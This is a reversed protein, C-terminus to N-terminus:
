TIRIDGDSIEPIDLFNHRIECVGHAIGQHQDLCFLPLGIEVINGILDDEAGAIDGVAQLCIEPLWGLSRGHPISKPPIVGLPTNDIRNLFIAM